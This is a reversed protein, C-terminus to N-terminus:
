QEDLTQLILQEFLRSQKEEVQPKKGVQLLM